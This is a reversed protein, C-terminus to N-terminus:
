YWTSRMNAAPSIGRMRRIRRQRPTLRFDQSSGVTIPAANPVHSSRSEFANIVTDVLAEFRKSAQVTQLVRFM